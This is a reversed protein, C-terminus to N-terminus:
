IYLKDSVVFVAIDNDKWYYIKLKFEFNKLTIGNSRLVLSQEQGEIVVDTRGPPEVNLGFIIDTVKDSFDNFVWHKFTDGNDVLIVLHLGTEGKLIIGYDERSDDNIDTITFYPIEERTYFSWWAKNYEATDPLTLESFNAKLYKIVNQPISANQESSLVSTDDSNQNGTNNHSQCGCVFILIVIFIRRMTTFNYHLAANLYVIIKVM